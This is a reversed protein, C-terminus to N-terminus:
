ARDNGSIFVTGKFKGTEEVVVNDVTDIFERIGNDDGTYLLVQKEAHGQQRLERLKWYLDEVNM